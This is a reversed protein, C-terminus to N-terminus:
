AKELPLKSIMAVLKRPKSLLNPGVVSRAAECEWRWTEGRASIKYRRLQLTGLEMLIGSSHYSPFFNGGGRGWHVEASCVFGYYSVVQINRDILEHIGSNGIPLSSVLTEM